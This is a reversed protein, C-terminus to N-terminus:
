GEFVSEDGVVGGDSAVAAVAVADPFEVAALEAVAAASSGGCGAVEVGGVFLGTLAVCRVQPAFVAAVVLEVVRQLVQACGALPCVELEPMNVDFSGELGVVGGLRQELEGDDEDDLPHWCWDEDGWSEVCCLFACLGVSEFGFSSVCVGSCSCCAVLLNAFEVSM